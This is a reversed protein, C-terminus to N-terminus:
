KEMKDWDRKTDRGMNNWNGALTATALRFGGWDFTWIGEGKGKKKEKERSIEFNQLRFLSVSLFVFFSLM